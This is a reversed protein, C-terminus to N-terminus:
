VAYGRHQYVDPNRGLWDLTQALGQEFTVRPRWGTLAEAKRADACLRLVESSDPRVRVAEAELTSPMLGYHALILSSVEGVSLERGSGFNLVEGTAASSTAAALFGEVTDSVYNFDRTPDLRGVRVPGGTAAQIAVAPIIARPSQRPGFTNFPRVVVVELGFSRAYSLALQDAGVKTAAYPSQPVLPHKEDMPVYQSTGYVESTSTHVVRSGFARAAQLVNQTGVINTQIYSDPATYSYPIGILAALHFIVESGDAAGRVFDADRVDGFLVEIDGLQPSSDLWGATGRSNYRVLARVRAGLEVLREALHSGIFGGAGTVLVRTGALPPPTNSHVPM